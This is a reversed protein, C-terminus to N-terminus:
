RGDSLNVHMELAYADHQSLLRDAVFIRQTQRFCASRRSLTPPCGFYIRGVGSLHREDLLAILPALVIQVRPQRLPLQKQFALATTTKDRCAM